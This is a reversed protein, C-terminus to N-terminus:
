EKYIELVANCITGNKLETSCHKKNLNLSVGKSGCKPCNYEITDNRKIM